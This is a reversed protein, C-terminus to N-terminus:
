EKLFCQQPHRANWIVVRQGVFAQHRDLIQQLSVIIQDQCNVLRERLGIGVDISINYPNILLVFFM